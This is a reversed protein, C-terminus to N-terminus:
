IRALLFQASKDKADMLVGLAVQIGGALGVQVSIYQLLHEEGLRLQRRYQETMFDLALVTSRMSLTFITQQSGEMIGLVM